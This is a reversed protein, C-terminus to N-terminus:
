SPKRLVGLIIPGTPSVAVLIPGTTLTGSAAIPCNTWLTGRMAVTNAGTTQNWAVLDASQINYSATQPNVGKDLFLPALTPDLPQSM